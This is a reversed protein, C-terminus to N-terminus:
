RTGCIAVGSSANGWLGKYAEMGIEKTALISQQVEDPIIEKSKSCSDKVTQTRM